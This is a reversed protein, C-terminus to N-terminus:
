RDRLRQRMKPSQLVRRLEKAFNDEFIMLRAMQKTSLLDKLGAFYDMRKQVMDKAIQILAQMEKQMEADNGDKVLSRLRALVTQRQEMMAREDDRFEKERAFFRIAQDEKLDLEEILKIRRYDEIRKRGEGEPPVDQAQISSGAACIFLLFLAFGRLPLYPSISM